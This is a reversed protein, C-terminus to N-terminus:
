SFDNLDPEIKIELSLKFLHHKLSTFYEPIEAM